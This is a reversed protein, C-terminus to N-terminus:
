GQRTSSTNPVPDQSYQTLIGYLGNGGYDKLFRTILSNYNPDVAASTGDQLKSPEWFIPISRTGSAMVPGSHYSLTAIPAFPSPATAIKKAVSRTPMIHIHQKPNLVKASNRPSFRSSAGASGAGLSSAIVAVVGFSVALRRFVRVKV